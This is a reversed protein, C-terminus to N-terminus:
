LVGRKGLVYGLCAAMVAIDDYECAQAELADSLKIVDSTHAKFGLIRFEQVIRISTDSTTNEMGGM